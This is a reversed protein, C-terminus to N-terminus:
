NWDHRFICTRHCVAYVFPAINCAYLATFPPNCKSVSFFKMMLPSQKKQIIKFHSIQWFSIRLFHFFTEVNRALRGEQLIIQCLSLPFSHFAGPYHKVLIVSVILLKCEQSGLCEVCNPKIYMISVLATPGPNITKETM